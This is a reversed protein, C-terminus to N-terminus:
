SPPAAIVHFSTVVVRFEQAAVLGANGEASEWLVSPASQLAVRITGGDAFYKSAVREGIPIRLGSDGTDRGFELVEPDTGEVILTLNRAGPQQANWFAQVSVYAPQPDIVFLNSSMTEASTPACEFTAATFWYVGISAACVLTGNWEQTRWEYEAEGPTAHSAASGALLWPGVYVPAPPARPSDRSEPQAACGALLAFGAM